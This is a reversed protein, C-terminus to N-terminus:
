SSWAKLRTNLPRRSSWLSIVPWPRNVPSQFQGSLHVKKAVGPDVVAAPDDVVRQELALDLRHDVRQAREADM